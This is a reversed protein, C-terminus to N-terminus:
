FMTEPILTRALAEDEALTEVLANEQRPWDETHYHAPSGSKGDLIVRLATRVKDEAFGLTALRRFLGSLEQRVYPEAAPPCLAYRVGQRPGTPPHRFVRGLAIEDKLAADGFIKAYDPLRRRLESWTLPGALLAARVLQGLHVQIPRDWFRDGAGRYKPYLFLVGAAVQRRLIPELGQVTLGRLALCGRLRAASMPQPSRRLAAVIAEVPDADRAPLRGERALLEVM